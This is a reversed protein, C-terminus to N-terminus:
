KTEFDGALFVPHSYANELWSLRAAWPISTGKLGVNNILQLKFCTKLTNQMYNIHWM